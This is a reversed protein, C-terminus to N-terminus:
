RMDGLWPVAQLGDPLHNGRPSQRAPAEEPQDMGRYAHGKTAHLLALYSRGYSPSRRAFRAVEHKLSLLTGYFALVREREGPALDGDGGVGDGGGGDGGGGDGDGPGGRPADDLGYVARLLLSSAAQQVALPADLMATRLLTADPTSVADLLDACARHNASPEFAEDDLPEGDAPGDCLSTLAHMVTPLLKSLTPSCVHSLVGLVFDLGHLLASSAMAADIESLRWAEAQELLLRVAYNLHAAAFTHQQLQRRANDEMVQQVALAPASPPEEKKPPEEEEESESAGPVTDPDVAAAGAQKGRAGGDQAASDAEGSQAPQEKTDLRAGEAVSSAGVRIQEYVLMYACTSYRTQTAHEPDSGFGEAEVVSADIEHVRADNFELWREGVRRFSFYHGSETEGSHVVVGVVRYETNESGGGATADGTGQQGPARCDDQGSGAVGATAAAPAAATSPSARGERRALGAATFPELDLKDPFACRSSLKVKSFTDLDFEFRKLQLLLTHPLRGLCSRKTADVTRNTKEDMYGQLPEGNVLQRLADEITANGKVELPLVRYAEERERRQFEGAEDQWLLQEIRAGGFVEDLLKASPGKELAPEVQAFLENLFEEADKQEHPALPQGDFDRFARCFASPEHCGRTSEQLTALMRQLEELMDHHKGASELPARLLGERLPAVMFLQQVLAAMYCTCGLNVIGIYGTPSVWDPEDDVGWDDSWMEAEGVLPSHLPRLAALLGGAHGLGGEALALLLSYASARTTALTALPPARRAAPAKFVYPFLVDRMTLQMVHRGHKARLAPHRLLLCRLLLLLGNLLAEAQEGPPERGPVGAVCVSDRQGLQLMQLLAREFGDFLLRTPTSGDAPEDTSGNAAEDLGGAESGAMLLDELLAFYEACRTPERRPEDLAGLLLRLLAARTGECEQSLRQLALALRLRAEQPARLLAGRMWRPTDPEGLWGECPNPSPAGAPQLSAVLLQLARESLPEGEVALAAAPADLAELDPPGGAAAELLRMSAHVLASPNLAARVEALLPAGPEAAALSALQHVLLAHERRAAGTGVWAPVEAIAAGPSSAAGSAAAVAPAACAASLFVLVVRILQAAVARMALPLVATSAASIDDALRERQLMGCLERLLGGRVLSEISRGREARRSQGTGGEELLTANLARLAYLLRFPPGAVLGRSVEGLLRLTPPMKALLNYALLAVPPEADLLKVLTQMREPQSGILALPKLAPSPPATTSTDGSPTQPQTPTAPRQAGAPWRAPPPRRPSPAASAARSGSRPQQPSVPQSNVSCLPSTPASLSVGGRHSLPSLPALGCDRGWAYAPTPSSPPTSIPPPALAELPVTGERSGGASASPPLRLAPGRGNSAPEPSDPPTDDDDYLHSASAAKVAQPLAPSPSDQFRKAPVSPECALVFMRLVHLCREQQGGLATGKAPANGPVRHAADVHKAELAALKTFCEAVFPARLPVASSDRVLMTVASQYVDLECAHLAVHWLAESARRSGGGFRAFRAFCLLAALSSALLPAADCMLEEFVRRNELCEAPLDQLWQFFLDRAALNPSFASWLAAMQEWQLRMEAERLVFALFDLREQLLLGAGCAHGDGHERRAESARSLCRLLEAHAEVLLVSAFAGAEGAEAAAKPGPVSADAEEAALPAYLKARPLRPLLLRLCRLVNVVGQGDHLRRLCRALYANQLEVTRRSHAPPADLPHRASPASDDRQEAASILECLSGLALSQLQAAEDTEVGLKWFTAALPSAAAPQALALELLLGLLSADVHATPLEAVLELLRAVVQKSLHPAVDSLAAALASRITAHQEIMSRWVISLLADSLLNHTALAALAPTCRKLLEDHMGETSLLREVVGADAVWRAADEYALTGTPSWEHEEDWSDGGRGGRTVQVSAGDMLPMQPQAAAAALTANLMTMGMLRRELAPCRLLRSALHLACREMAIASDAPPMAGLQLQSVLKLLRGLLARSVERDSLLADSAGIMSTTAASALASCLKRQVDPRLLEVICDFADLMEHLTMLDLAGPRGALAVAASLGGCRSFEDLNRRLLAPVWGIDAAAVQQGFSDGNEDEADTARQADNADAEELEDDLLYSSRLYFEHSSEMLRAISRFLDHPFPPPDDAEAAAAERCRHAIYALCSQFFRNVRLVAAPELPGRKLLAKILLPLAQDLSAREEDDNLSAREEENSHKILYRIREECSDLAAASFPSRRAAFRDDDTRHVTDAALM